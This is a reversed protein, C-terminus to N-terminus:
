GCGSHTEVRKMIPSSQKCRAVCLYPPKGVSCWRWGLEQTMHNTRLWFIFADRDVWLDIDEFSLPHGIRFRGFRATTINRISPVLQAHRAGVADQPTKLPKKLPTKLHRSTRVFPATPGHRHFGKPSTPLYIALYDQQWCFM